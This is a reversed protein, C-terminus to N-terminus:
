IVTNFISVLVQQWFRLLRRNTIWVNLTPKVNAQQKLQQIHGLKLDNYHQAVYASRAAILADSNTSFRTSLQQEVDAPIQMQARLTVLYRQALLATKFNSMEQQFILERSKGTSIAEQYLAESRAIRLLMDGRLYAQDQEDMAPFQTAFPAAQMAAELQQETVQGSKGITVLM